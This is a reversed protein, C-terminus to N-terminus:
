IRALVESFLGYNRRVGDDLDIQIRMDALHHVKGAFDNVEQLQASWGNLGCLLLANFREILRSKINESLM